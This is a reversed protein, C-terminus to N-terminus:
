LVGDASFIAAFLVLGALNLAFTILWMRLLTALRARGAYVASVPILFNETFLEARGLTIFVLAVGFTLSGLVHAPADPLVTALAGTTVAVAVIGFFVDVGGALGTAALASSGRSLRREGEDLGAEYIEDPTAVAM